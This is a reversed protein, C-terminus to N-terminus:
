WGQAQDSKKRRSDISVGVVAGIATGFTAGIGVGISINDLAVGVGAGVAVGVGIAIAVLAIQKERNDPETKGSDDAVKNAEEPKLILAGCRDLPM